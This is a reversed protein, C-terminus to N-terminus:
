SEREDRMKQGMALLGLGAFVVVSKVVLEAFTRFLSDYYVTVSSLLLFGLITVAAGSVLAIKYSEM